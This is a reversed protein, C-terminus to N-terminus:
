GADVKEPPIAHTHTRDRMFMLAGQRFIYSIKMDNKKAYDRINEILEDDMSITVRKM